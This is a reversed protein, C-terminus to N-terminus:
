KRSAAALLINQFSNKKQPILSTYPSGKPMLLSLINDSLKILIETINNAAHISNAVYKVKENFQIQKQLEQLKDAETKTQTAMNNTGERLKQNKM